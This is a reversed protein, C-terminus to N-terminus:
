YQKCQTSKDLGAYYNSQISLTYWVMANSMRQISFMRPYDLVAIVIPHDKMCRSVIADTQYRELEANLLSKRKNTGSQFWEM